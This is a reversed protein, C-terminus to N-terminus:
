IFAYHSMAPSPYDATGCSTPPPLTLKGIWFSLAESTVTGRGFASFSKITGLVVWSVSGTEMAAEKGRLM